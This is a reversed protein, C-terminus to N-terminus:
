SLTRPGTSCKVREGDPYALSDPDDVAVFFQGRYGIAPTAGEGHITSLSVVVDDGRTDRVLTVQQNAGYMYRLTATGDRWRCSDFHERAEDPERSSAIWGASTFVLAACLILVRAVKVGRKM